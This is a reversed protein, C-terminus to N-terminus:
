LLITSQNRKIDTINNVLYDEYIQLKSIECKIINNM